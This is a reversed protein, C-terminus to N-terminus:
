KYYTITIFGGSPITLAYSAGGSVTVNAFPTSTAPGGTGGPFTLSFGTSAAGTTVPDSYDFYYHCTTHRYYVTSDPTEVTPDCYDSPKATDYVVPGTDTLQEPQGDRREFTTISTRRWGLRGPSGDAGEGVVTELRSVGFPITVSQSSAYTLTVLERKSSVLALMWPKM